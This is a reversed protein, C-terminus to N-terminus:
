ECCVSIIHKAKMSPVYVKEVQEEAGKWNASELGFM